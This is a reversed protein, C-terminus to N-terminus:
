IHCRGFMVDLYSMTPVHCGFIVDYSCSMWIHCRGFMVFWELTCSYRRYRSRGGNHRLWRYEDLCSRIISGIWSPTDMSLRRNDILAGLIRRLPAHCLASLIYNHHHNHLASRQFLPLTIEIQFRFKYKKKKKQKELFRPM